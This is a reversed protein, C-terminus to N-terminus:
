IQHASLMETLTNFFRHGRVFAGNGTYPLPLLPIGEGVMPSLIFLKHKTGKLNEINNKLDDTVIKPVDETSFLINQNNEDFSWEFVSEVIKGIYKLESNYNVAIYKINDTKWHAPCIYYDYITTTHTAFAGTVVMVSM